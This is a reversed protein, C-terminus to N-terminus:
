FSVLGEAAIKELYKADETLSQMRALIDACHLEIGIWRRGLLEAAVYTTGSGGFPDLVV